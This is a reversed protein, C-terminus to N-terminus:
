SIYMSSSYRTWVGTGEEDKAYLKYFARYYYGPTGTYRVGAAHTVHNERIMAAYHDNMSFTAVTTWNENDSSQQIKIEKAGVQDMTRVCTVEFWAQFSYGATKYLYVASNSFFNSERSNEIQAAQAPIAFLLLLSLVLCLCRSFRKLM